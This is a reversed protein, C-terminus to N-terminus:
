RSAAPSAQLSGSASGAEARESIQVRLDWYRQTVTFLVERGRQPAPAPTRAIIQVGPMEPANEAGSNVDFVPDQPEAM